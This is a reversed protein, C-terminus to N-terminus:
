SNTRSAVKRALDYLEDSDCYKRGCSLVFVTNRSPQVFVVYLLEGWYAFFTKGAVATVETAAPYSALLSTYRERVANPDALRFLQIGFGYSTGKDPEWYLSDQDESAPSGPLVSRHFPVKGDTAAKVDNETLLLRLDPLAPKSYGSPVPPV